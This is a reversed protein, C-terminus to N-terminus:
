PGGQDLAERVASRSREVADRWLQYLTESSDADASEFVWQSRGAADVESWPRPLEGGALDRTFNIDEMYALHELLRGLTLGSTDLRKALQEGDLGSCKWEFTARQRELSGVLTSSEDGVAPPEPYGQVEGTSEM